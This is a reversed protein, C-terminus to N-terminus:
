TPAGDRVDNPRNCLTYIRLIKQILEMHSRLHGKTKATGDRGWGWHLVTQDEMRAGIGAGDGM